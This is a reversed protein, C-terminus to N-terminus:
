FSFSLLQDNIFTFSMYYLKQAGTLNLYKKQEFNVLTGSLELMGFDGFVKFYIKLDRFDNTMGQMQKKFNLWLTYM